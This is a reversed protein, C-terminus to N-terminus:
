AASLCRRGAVAIGTLPVGLLLATGPLGTIGLLSDTAPSYVTLLLGLVAFVVSVTWAFLGTVRVLRPPPGLRSGGAGTAIVVALAIAIAGTGTWQVVTNVLTFGTGGSDDADQGAAHLLVRWAVPQATLVACILLATRRGQALGLEIQYEPAIVQVSGFDDVARREARERVLGSEEYAEAADLLSDRVEALMDAKVAQPGRLAQDLEAVYRDIM